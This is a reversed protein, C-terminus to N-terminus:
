VVIPGSRDAVRVTAVAGANFDLRDEEIGDSFIVGNEGIDRLVEDNLDALLSVDIDNAEFVDAYQPLGLDELWARVSSM